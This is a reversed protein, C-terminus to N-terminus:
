VSIEYRTINGNQYDLIFQNPSRYGISGHLRRTNYFEIFKTVAVYADKFSYFYSNELLETELISFFSEVFANRNPTRPPIFEHELKQELRKLYFHFQGSSMQPGNDSRVKLNHESTIGEKKLAQDLTFILDGAKCSKGIYYGTVKKSFVDLYALVFFWKSESHIYGYKIDFQWLQNPGSITKYDCRKKSKKYTNKNRFLLLNNEKCLRYIKKHNVYFGHEVSLYKSLKYYGGGNIFEPAARYNKLLYSITQDPLIV